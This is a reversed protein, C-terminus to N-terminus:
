AVAVLASSAAQPRMWRKQPFKFYCRPGAAAGRIARYMARFKAALPLASIRLGAKERMSTGPDPVAAAVASRQPRRPLRGLSGRFAAACHRAEQGGGDGGSVM